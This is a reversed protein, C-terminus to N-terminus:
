WVKPAELLLAISLLFGTTYTGAAGIFRLPHPTHVTTCLLSGAAHCYRAFVAAYMTIEVLLSPDRGGLAFILIALMPAYEIANGHARIAKRLGSASDAEALRAADTTMRMRHLSVNFGLAMVLAGLLSVSVFSEFM